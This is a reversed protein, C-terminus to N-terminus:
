FHPTMILVLPLAALVWAFLVALALRGRAPPERHPRRAAVQRATRAPFVLCLLAAPVGLLLPPGVMALVALPLDLAVELLFGVSAAALGNLIARWWSRPVAVRYAAGGLVGAVAILAAVRLLYPRLIAALSLHSEEEAANEHMAVSRQQLVRFRRLLPPDMGHVRGLDEVSGYPAGRRIAEALQRTVGPVAVLDVLSAANLDFTHVRPQTRFQDFVSTGIRFDDNALWVAPGSRFGQGLSIARVVRDLVPAEDPFSAEYGAIAEQVDSPRSALLAHFLKLYANELPTVSEANVGFPRYFAADRRINQIQPDTLWAVFLAAVVGETSALQPANKPPDSPRGPLMNDLLYANYPDAHLLRDATQPQRSFGNARVAYYRLAQEAGSFWLPFAIRRRGPAPWGAQLEQAYERFQMSTRREFFRDPLLARTEPLADPDDVAMVQFHEAFGENFANYPDTRVGIAHMQNSGGRKPPGALQVLIVHGLEHPFIQDMAGFRGGIRPTAPLDVYGASRKDLSGLYFGFRPFGGMHSSVLLYAPEPRTGTQAQLYRQELAYLRLLRGSLGRCLAAVYRGAEAHPGYVPLGDRTGGTERLVELLPPAGAEQPGAGRVPSTWTLALCVVAPLCARTFLHPIM